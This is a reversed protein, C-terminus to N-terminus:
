GIIITFPKDAWALYLVIIGLIAIIGGTINYKGSFGVTIANLVYGAFILYCGVIVMAIFGIWEM